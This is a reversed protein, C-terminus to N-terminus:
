NLLFKKAIFLAIVTTGLLYVLLVVLFFLVLLVKKSHTSNSSWLLHNAARIMDGNNEISNKAKPLDLSEIVCILAVLAIFFAYFSIWFIGGTLNLVYQVDLSGYVGSAWVLLVVVLFNVSVVIPVIQDFHVSLYRFAKEM